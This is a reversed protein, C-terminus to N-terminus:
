HTALYSNYATQTTEIYQALGITELQKCYADWDSDLNM